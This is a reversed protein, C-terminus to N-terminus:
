QSSILKYFSNIKESFVALDDADIDLDFNSVLECTGRGTEPEKIFLKIRFHNKEAKIRIQLYSSLDEFVAEQTTSAGNRLDNVQRSFSLFDDQDFWIDNSTYTFKGTRHILSIKTDMMISPMKNRVYELINFTLEIYGLKCELNM